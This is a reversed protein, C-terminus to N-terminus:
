YEEPLLFTSASRDAETIVWLKVKKLTYYVSFLRDGDRLADENAQWDTAGVEGWDGIVHKALFFGPELGSAELAALAGPTALLRGLSFKPVSKGVVNQVKAKM